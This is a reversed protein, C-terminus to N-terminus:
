DGCEDLALIQRVTDDESCGCEGEGMTHVLNTLDELEGLLTHYDALDMLVASVRGKKAIFIPGNQLTDMLEFLRRRVETVNKIRIGM